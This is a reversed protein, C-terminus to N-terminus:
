KFVGTESNFVVEHKWQRMTEQFYSGGGSMKNKPFSMFRSKEKGAEHSRGMCIILDAEGQVATKSMYIKSMDFYQSGEASSDAQYVGIVPAVSKAMERAWNAIRTQTKVDSIDDGFGRVKWLQDIVIAAVDYKKCYEEVDYRSLTAMDVVIIRDLPGIAARYLKDVREWDRRMDANVLETAEQLIRLKVKRGEQENNFWLISKGEPLQKAFANAQGALFSTKGTDPRAVLCVFDGKRLPGCSQNMWVQKWDLGDGLVQNILDPVYSSVINNDDVDSVSEELELLFAKLDEVTKTSGGSLIDETTLLCKELIHRDRLSKYLVDASEQDYETHELLRILLEKDEPSCAPRRVAFLWLSFKSRDLTETSPLSSYYHGVDDLLGKEQHPLSNRLRDLLPKFKNYQERTSLLSVVISM